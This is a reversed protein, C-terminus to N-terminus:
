NTTALYISKITDCSEPLQTYIRQAEDQDRKQNELRIKSKAQLQDNIISYSYENDQALIHDRLTSTIKQSSLLEREGWAEM